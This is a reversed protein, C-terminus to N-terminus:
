RTVSAVPSALGTVTLFAVLRGKDLGGTSICRALTEGLPTIRLTGGEGVIWGEWEMHHLEKAVAQQEYWQYTVRITGVELVRQDDRNVIVGRRDCSFRLWPSVRM